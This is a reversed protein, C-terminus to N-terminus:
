RGEGRHEEYGRSMWVERKINRFWDAVTPILGGCDEKVHLEAVYRTPVMKGDSNTLTPGFVRECEFIGQSHHRLARHRFDAFTEKTADLWQHIHIYDEPRGGFKKASSIAHFNPHTM